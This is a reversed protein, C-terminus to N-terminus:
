AWDDAATELKIHTLAATIKKNKNAFTNINLYYYNDLNIWFAEAKFSAGDFPELASGPLKGIPNAAAAM